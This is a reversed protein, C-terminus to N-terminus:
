NLKAGCDTCFKAGDENVAGCSPCVNVPAPQPKELQAGCEQCFKAQKGNKAGCAQCTVFSPEAAEKAAREKEAEEEQKGYIADVVDGVKDIANKVEGKKAALMNLFPRLKGSIFASIEEINKKVNPKKNEGEM